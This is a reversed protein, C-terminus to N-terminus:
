RADGEQGEPNIGYFEALWKVADLERGYTEPDDWAAGFPHLFETLLHGVATEDTEGDEAYCSLVLEARRGQADTNWVELFRGHAGAPVTILERGENNHTPTTGESKPQTQNEM